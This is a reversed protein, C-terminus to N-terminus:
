KEVNNKVAIRKMSNLTVATVSQRTEVFKQREGTKLIADNNQGPEIIEFVKIWEGRSLDREDSRPCVIGYNDTCNKPLPSQVAKQMTM